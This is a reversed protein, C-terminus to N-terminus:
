PLPPAGMIVGVGSLIPELIDFLEDPFAESVAAELAEIDAGIEVLRLDINAESPGIRDRINGLTANILVLTNNIAQIDEQCAMPCIMRQQTSATLELRETATWGHWRNTFEAYFNALGLLYWREAPTLCVVTYGTEGQTQAEMDSKHFAIQKSTWTTVRKDRTKAAM